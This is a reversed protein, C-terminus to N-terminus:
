IRRDVASKTATSKSSEIPTFKAVEVLDFAAIVRAWSGAGALQLGPGVGDGVAVAVGADVTLAEGVGEGVAVVETVM